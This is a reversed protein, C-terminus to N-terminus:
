VPLMFLAWLGSRPCGASPRLAGQWVGSRVGGWVYITSYVLETCLCSSVDEVEEKPERHATIAESKVRHCSSPLLAPTLGGRAGSSTTDWREAARLARGELELGQANRGASQAGWM